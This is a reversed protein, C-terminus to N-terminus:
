AGIIAPMRYLQYEGRLRPEVAGYGNESALM